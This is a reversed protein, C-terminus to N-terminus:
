GNEYANKTWDGMRRRDEWVDKTKRCVGVRMGMLQRMVIERRNHSM